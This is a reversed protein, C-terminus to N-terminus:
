GKNNNNKKDEHQRRDEKSPAEQGPNAIKKRGAKRKKKQNHKIISSPAIGNKIQRVRKREKKDRNQETATYMYLKINKKQM